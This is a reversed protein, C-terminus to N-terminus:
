GAGAEQGSIVWKPCGYYDIESQSSPYRGCNFYRWYFSDYGGCRGTDPELIPCCLSKVQCCRRCSGCSDGHPWAGSLQAAGRLPRSLPPSDLPVGLMFTGEGRLVLLLLRWGHPFLAAGRRWYRWFRWDDFFLHTMLPATLFGGVGSFLAFGVYAHFAVRACAWGLRQRRAPARAPVPPPTWYVGRELAITLHESSQAVITEPMTDSPPQM